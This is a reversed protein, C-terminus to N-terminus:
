VFIIRLALATLGGAMNVNVMDPMIPVILSYGLIILAM